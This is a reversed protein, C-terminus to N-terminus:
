SFYSILNFYNKCLIKCSIILFIISPVDSVQHILREDWRALTYYQFIKSKLALGYTMKITAFFAKIQHLKKLDANLPPCVFFQGPRHKPNWLRYFLHVQGGENHM